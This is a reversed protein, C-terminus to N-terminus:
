KKGEMITVEANPLSYLKDVKGQLRTEWKQAVRKNARMLDNELFYAVFGALASSQKSIETINNLHKDAHRLGADGTVRFAPYEYYQKERSYTILYVDEGSVVKGPAPKLMEPNRICLGGHKIKNFATKIIPDLYMACTDMIMSKAEKDTYAIDTVNTDPSHARVTDADPFGLADLVNDANQIMEIFKPVDGPAYALLTGLLGGPKDWRSYGLLLAGFTELSMVMEFFLRVQLHAVTEYDKSQHADKLSSYLSNAITVPANCGFAVYERLYAADLERQTM